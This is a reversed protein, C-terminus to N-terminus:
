THLKESDQNKEDIIGTSGVEPLGRWALPAGPLSYLVNSMHFVTAMKFTSLFLFKSAALSYTTQQLVSTNLPMRNM